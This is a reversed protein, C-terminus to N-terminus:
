AQMAGTTVTSISGMADCNVIARGAGDMGVIRGIYIDNDGITIDGKAVADTPNNTINASVDMLLADGIDAVTVSAITPWLYTGGSVYEILDGQAATVQKKTVIGVIRDGAAQGTTVLYGAALAYVLSGAYFTQASNAPGVIKVGGGLLPMETDKTVAAM